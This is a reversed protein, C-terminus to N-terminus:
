RQQVVGLFLSDQKVRALREVIKDVTLSDQEGTKLDRLTLNGSMIERHGVFIAYDFGQANASSLQAAMKRGMLDIDASICSRIRSVVKLAERRTDDTSIVMVRVPEKIEVDVAAIVRDFGIGFGM